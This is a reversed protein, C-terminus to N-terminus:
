LRNILLQLKLHGCYKRLKSLNTNNQWKAKLLVTIQEFYKGAGIEEQNAICVIYRIFHYLDSLM